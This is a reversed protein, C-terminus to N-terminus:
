EPHELVPIEILSISSTEALVLLKSVPVLADVFRKYEGRIEGNVAIIKEKASETQGSICSITVFVNGDTVKINNKQAYHELEGNQYAKYLLALQYTLAPHWDKELFEIDILETETQNSVSIHQEYNSTNQPNQCGFVQSIIILSFAVM